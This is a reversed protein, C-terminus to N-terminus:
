ISALAAKNAESAVCYSAESPAIGSEGNLACPIAAPFAAAPAIIAALSPSPRNPGECHTGFEAGPCQCGRMLGAVPCGTRSGVGQTPPTFGKRICLEDCNRVAPGFASELAAQAWSKLSTFASPEVFLTARVGVCVYMARQHCLVGTALQFATARSRMARYSTSM